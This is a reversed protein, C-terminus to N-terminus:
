NLYVTQANALDGVEGLKLANDNWGEAGTSVLPDTVAEALEHSVAQTLQDRPSLWSLDSPAHSGAPVPAVSAAPYPIVAYPIRHTHGAADVGTFDYHYGLYNKPSSLTGFSTQVGPEVFVVYLRNADPQAVSGNGILNRLVGQV